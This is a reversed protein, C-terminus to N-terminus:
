CHLQQGGGAGGVLRRHRRRRRAAATCAARRGRLQQGVWAAQVVPRLLHHRQHLPALAGVHAVAHRQVAPQCVHAALLAISVREHGGADGVQM